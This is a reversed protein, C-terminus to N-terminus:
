ILHVEVIIDGRSNNDYTHEENIKLIGEEKILVIQKKKTIKLSDGPIKILKEGIKFEYFGECFLESIFIQKSLYINNNEDIWSNNSTDPECRVILEKDQLSFHLEHHWLPVYVETDEVELKFINDDFLDKLSPNLVIINEYWRKQLSEKFSNLLEDEIGLVCKFKCLFEYVQTAKKKNLKDFIKLSICHCDKLLGHFSTDVFLNDWNTEPSFYKICMKILEKYDINEDINIKDVNDLCLYDYAEKVERFKGGDDETYKDPHYRLAMRFYAKKIDNDTHNESLELIESARKYNM